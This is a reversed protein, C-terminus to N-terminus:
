NFKMESTERQVANLVASASKRLIHWQCSDLLLSAKTLESNKARVQDMEQLSAIFAAVAAAVMKSNPLYEFLNEAFKKADLDDFIQEYLEDFDTVSTDSFDHNIWARRLKEDDLLFDCYGIVQPLWNEFAIM